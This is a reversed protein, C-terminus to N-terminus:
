DELPLTHHPPFGMLWEVMLPNLRLLRLSTPSAGSSPPGPPAIPPDQRGPSRGVERAVIALPEGAGNNGHKAKLTAQRARWAEPEETDNPNSASPTPWMQTAQENLPRANKNLTEESAEGSRWDRAAPTAWLAAQNALQEGHHVRRPTHTREHATATAWLATVGPLSDAIGKGNM